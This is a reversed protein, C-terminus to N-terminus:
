KRRTGSLWLYFRAGEIEVFERNQTPARALLDKAGPSGMWIIGGAPASSDSIIRQWEDPDAIDTLLVRQAYFPLTTGYPEFNCLVQANEPFHARILTGVKPIFQGSEYTQGDLLYAQSQLSRARARGFLAMLLILCLAVSTGVHRIGRRDMWNALADLAIGGMMAVPTIFYFGAYDHIFSANPFAVIYIADLLFLLLAAWGIWRLPEFLHRQRFVQFAGVVALLWLIPFILIALSGGVERLWEILTFHAGNGNGASARLQFANALDTWADPRVSHIQLLFLIGSGIAWAFLAVAFKVNRRRAFDVALILALFYGFWATWMALLLSLFFVACWRKKKTVIWFRLSLLAALMWMLACPEFNVMQGYHLEMPMGAFLLASFTAAREGACGRVLLWLLATSCISCLIPLLRATWESEGFLSFIGALTIPLLSPHHVYYASPPFPPPAFNFAVPVGATARIGARLLNHAAHSWVAGNYYDDQTWPSTFDTSFFALQFAIAIFLGAIWAKGSTRRASNPASDRDATANAHLL